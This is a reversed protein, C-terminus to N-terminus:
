RVLMAEVTERVDGTELTILYVGSAASAGQTDRGNWEVTHLGQSLAREQLTRVLAGRTDRIEIRITEPQALQFRVLVTDNFPNPYPPQLRREVEAPRQTQQGIAMEEIATAVDGLVVIDDYLRREFGTLVGDADVFPFVHVPKLIAQWTGDM